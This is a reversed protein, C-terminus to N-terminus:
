VCKVTNNEATHLYEQRLSVLWGTNRVQAHCVCKRPLVMREGVRSEEYIAPPFIRHCDDDCLFSIPAVSSYGVMEGWFKGKLSKSWDRFLPAVCSM